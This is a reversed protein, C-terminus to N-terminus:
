IFLYIMINNPFKNTFNNVYKNLCLALPRIRLLDCILGHSQTFSSKKKRKVLGHGELHFIPFFHIKKSFFIAM